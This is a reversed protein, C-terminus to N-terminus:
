GAQASREVLARFEREDGKLLRVDRVIDRHFFSSKLKDFFEDVASLHYNVERGIMKEVEEVAVQIEVDKVSGLVYLDIDSDSGFDGKVYSGFLFSYEIGTLGGLSERMIHEIGITKDIIAKLEPLLSNSKNLMYYVQHGRRESGAVGDKELRRLERQVTGTSAGILRALENIYYAKEPNYVLFLLIRQRIKSRFLIDLMVM